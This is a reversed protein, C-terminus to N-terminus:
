GLEVGRSSTSTVLVDVDFASLVERLYDMYKPDIVAIMCGGGGAGTLKAGYAGANRCQWVLQSLLPHGVGIADLLGQNIDMLKGLAPLDNKQICNIIEKSLTGMNEIIGSMVPWSSHLEAVDAVLKKTDRPIKSNIIVLPIQEAIEQMTIKGDEFILMGGYTAISNDIGSPKGHVIEESHFALKSIEENVLELSYLDAIAAVTAAAVAASSGLGASVPVDSEIELMLSPANIMSVVIKALGDFKDHVPINKRVLELQQETFTINIGFERSNISLGTNSPIAQVRCRLDLATALAPYKYVVSHEGTIIVKGPASGRGIQKM